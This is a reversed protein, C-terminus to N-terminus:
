VAEGQVLLGPKFKSLCGKRFENLNLGYGKDKAFSRNVDWPVLFSYCVKPLM